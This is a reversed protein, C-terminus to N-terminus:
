LIVALMMYTSLFFLSNKVVGDVGYMVYDPSSLEDNGDGSRGGAGCRLRRAPKRKGTM